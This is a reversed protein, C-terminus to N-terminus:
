QRCHHALATELMPSPTLKAAIGSSAYLRVSSSRTSESVVNASM